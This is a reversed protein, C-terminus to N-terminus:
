LREGNAVCVPMDTPSALSYPSLDYLSFSVYTHCILSSPCTPFSHIEKNTTVLQLVLEAGLVAGNDCYSNNVEGQRCSSLYANLTILLRGVVVTKLVSTISM